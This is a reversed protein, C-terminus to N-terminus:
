GEQIKGPCHEGSLLSPPASTVHLQVMNTPGIM